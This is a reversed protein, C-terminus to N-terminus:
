IEKKKEGPGVFDIRRKKTPPPIGLRLAVANHMAFIHDKFHKVTGSFSNKVNEPCLTCNHKRSVKTSQSNNAGGSTALEATTPPLEEFYSWVAKNLDTTIRRASVPTAM